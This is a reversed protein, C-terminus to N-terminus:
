TVSKRSNWQFLISTIRGLWSDGKYFASIPDHFEGSDTNRTLRNPPLQSGRRLQVTSCSRMLLLSTLTTRLFGFSVPLDNTAETPSASPGNRCPQTFSMDLRIPLSLNIKQNTADIRLKPMRSPITAIKVFVAISTPRVCGIDCASQRIKAAIIIRLAATHLSWSRPQGPQATTRSNTGNTSMM